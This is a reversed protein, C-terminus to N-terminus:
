RVKIWRRKMNRIDSKKIDFIDEFSNETDFALQLYKLSQFMEFLVVMALLAAVICLYIGIVFLPFFPMVVLPIGIFIGVYIVAIIIIYRIWLNGKITWYALLKEKEANTLQDFTKM